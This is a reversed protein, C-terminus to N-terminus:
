RPKKLWNWARNLNSKGRAEDLQELTLVQGTKITESAADTIEVTMYRVSSWKMLGTLSKWRYVVALEMKHIPRRTVLTIERDVSEVQAVPPVIMTAGCVDVILFISLIGIITLTIKTM